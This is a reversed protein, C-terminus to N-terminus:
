EEALVKKIRLAAVLCGLGFLIYWGGNIPTGANGMGENEHEKDYGSENDGWGGDDNGSEFQPFTSMDEGFLATSQNTGPKVTSGQNYIGNATTVDQFPEYNAAKIGACACLMLLAVLLIKHNM